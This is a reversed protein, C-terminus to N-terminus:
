FVRKQISKYKTLYYISIYNLIVVPDNVFYAKVPDHLSSNLKYIHVLGHVLDSQSKRREILKAM